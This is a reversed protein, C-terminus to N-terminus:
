LPIFSNYCLVYLYRLSLTTIPQKTLIPGIEGNAIRQIFPDFDAHSALPVVSTFLSELACADMDQVNYSGFWKKLYEVENNQKLIKCLIQTQVSSANKSVDEFWTLINDCEINVNSSEM